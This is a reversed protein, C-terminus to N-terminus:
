HGSACGDCGEVWRPLRVVTREVEGGGDVAMLAAAPAPMLANATVELRYFNRGLPPGTDIFLHSGSVGSIPSGLDQWVTLSQGEEVQYTLAPNAFWSLNVHGNTPNVSAFLEPIVIGVPPASAIEWGIDALGAVDLETMVQHFLGVECSSPDMRAIQNLGAPVGFQAITKSLINLPNSPNFGTVAVCAGDDQWHAGGVQVPVNGGFSAVSAPGTFGGGIIHASWSASTGVGFVHGLEHLATSVFSASGNVTSTLSFNWTTTSSFAVSGGWLGFDTPPTVLAGAQGRSGLLDFWAQADSGTGGASFGGPGGRGLASGINRGGVYLFVTNAPVVIDPLFTDAGTSPHFFRRQWTEGTWESVDIRPLSDTLISEYYDCVARLAEKSGAQNFFGNTDLSYDIEIEIGDSGVLAASYFAAVIIQVRYDRKFDM